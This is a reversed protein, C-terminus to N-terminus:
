KMEVIRMIENKSKDLLSISGKPVYITLNSCDGFARYGIDRVSNPITVSILNRCSLFSYDGITTVSNPIIITTLSSCGRFTDRKISNISNPLSVNNLKKCNEFANSGIEKVSNPITIDTLSSERFASSGINTVGEPITISTLGHCLEFAGAAIGITGDKLTIRTGNPIKGKYEYAVRGAYVLGSPQSDFWGTKEFADYGITSVSNPITISTLNICGEFAWNGISTLGNPLIISVLNSDNSFADDPITECEAKSLDVSRIDMNDKLKKKLIGWDKDTLPGVLKISSNGDNKSFQIGEEMTAYITETNDETINVVKKFVSYGEKSIAVTHDGELLKEITFPTKGIERGDISIVADHPTSMIDLSGFKPIPNLTFDQSQGAVVQIQKTVSKHHNLRTELDYYGEMMDESIRSKGLLKGNGYIEAGDLSNITIRAFRADLTMSVNATQGDEVIVEQQKPAYKDLQLSITHSGSSIETLTAPTQKGTQKGDLLIKAGAINSNVSISGFAPKLVIKQEIRASNLEVVGAAPHYNPSELKYQYTGYAQKYNSLPTNGVFENNIYVSAGSPESDLIIWGTKTRVPEQEKDRMVGSITLLYVTKPELSKINYDQFGVELPLYGELKVMLRKSRQAMYVLYESTNYTVDGIVNGEFVANPAALQVKVLACDNGNIDQRPQTRATIDNPKADFSEVNLKQAHVIDICM